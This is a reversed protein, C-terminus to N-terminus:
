GDRRSGEPDYLVTEAVVVDVMRDGVPAVLTQGIRNRGDKILALAFSRGLAASHYSSTVHGLMPVPGDAPTIPTGAAVLQTGEPLRFTKDVPLVSVLHKRDTRATDDRSYSRKGVFDKVKSVIWEMGADQPTVTGDTDQGVIPYGKEARLVHMTETGYPTIAWEQGAAHIEEWVRQGFWTEVNVEFALEGSFSIRCVRAPVGSALTTERFSMFPFAENSVDLEPAIKAIVERSKPGVVAVTAWQETVSTFSVDLAPWETQHWEELWDLVKAAGGTTTTMFYRGEDLRLTVGDDFIMGDPTCMVGYRASGPALKKFGNTYIRNLFEGADSGWVEIKGLTTADMMGVSERVAACERLVAEDLSEGNRPYYWPRLWQGVIEMEAGQVVHWPHISTLRAPDFLDGRERGALAVFPVPAYPARYTTTGIEGPSRGDNLAAAIVGIANVGSTKGQDNATSISTYRKIHEVSRMGAGTARLVDHVTQDRQLDVFHDVLDDLPVGDEAALWLSRTTGSGTAAPLPEIPAELEGVFGAALLATSASHRGEALCAELTYSGRASGVIQQGAVEGTPVFGALDEDWRVKGQRQSHLHVVPSWGGAVAVVDCAIDRREGVALGNDDIASVTATTVQPDGDTDLVASGLLVEIGAAGARQAAESQEARSDVVAAVSVGAATLDAAVDYASDNTTALLIRDGAAVGYRNLYTRVASALMVGPRDNNAFVLPREHAGTAVIVQQARIHWLRQRSLGALEEKAPAELHDLRSELAIVYNSDYSGFANTRTLVTVEPAAALEETVGRLWTDSDVGDVSLARTSLLSGGLEPQDDILIVRAGSAAATSAAALGTLGAGIVLVDTHVYKKDYIATDDAPDLEGLGSLYHAELGDVLEVTTAPLMSETVSDGPRRLKVLANPEEVGAAIVGRPRQRYLSPGCELVGNAILASALTDGAHGAYEQGDLSFTLRTSRDIRGGDPLRHSTTSM